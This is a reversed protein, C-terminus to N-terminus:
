GSTPPSGSTATAAWSMGARDGRAAEGSPGEDRRRRARLRRAAGRRRRAAGPRRPEGAGPLPRAAPRPRREAGRQARDPVAVAAARDPRRCWGAVPRRPTSSRRSSRTRPARPSSSGGATGCSRRGTGPSSRRSRGSTATPPWRWWGSTRSGSWCAPVQSGQSAGARHREKTGQGSRWSQLPRRMVWGLLEVPQHYTHSGNSTTPEDATSRSPRLRSRRGILWRTSVFAPTGPNPPSRPPTRTPSRRGRRRRRWLSSRRPGHMMMAMTTRGATRPRRAASAASAAGRTVYNIPELAPFTAEGAPVCQAKRETLTPEHTDQHETSPEATQLQGGPQGLLEITGDLDNQYIPAVREHEPERLEIHHEPPGHRSFHPVRVTIQDLRAHLEDLRRHLRDIRDGLTHRGIGAREIRIHHDDSEAGIEIGSYAPAPPPLARTRCKARRSPATWRTSGTGEM